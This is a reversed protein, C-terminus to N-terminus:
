PKPRPISLQLPLQGTDIELPTTALSVFEAPVLDAPEIDLHVKHRGQALGDGFRSSTAEHFEGTAVDVMASAPRPFTRADAPPEQSTFWLQLRRAPIPTGDEYTIKGQVPVLKFPQRSCGLTYGGAIIILCFFWTRNQSPMSM